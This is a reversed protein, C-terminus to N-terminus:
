LCIGSVTITIARMAPATAICAAPLTGQLVISGQLEADVQLAQLMPATIVPCSM